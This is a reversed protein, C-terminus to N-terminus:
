KRGPIFRSFLSGQNSNVQETKQDQSIKHEVSQHTKARYIKENGDRSRSFSMEIITFVVGTLHPVNSFDLKWREQNIFLSKIFNIKSNYVREEIKSDKLYGLTILKTTHEYVYNYIQTAGEATMIPTQLYLINGNEDRIYNDQEDLYPVGDLLTKLHVLSDSPDLEWMKLESEDIQERNPKHGITIDEYAKFVDEM